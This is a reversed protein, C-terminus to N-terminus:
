GLVRILCPPEAPYAIVRCLLYITGERVKEQECKGVMDAMGVVNSISDSIKNAAEYGRHAFSFAGGLIANAAFFLQRSSRVKQQM